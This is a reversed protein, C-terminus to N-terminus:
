IGTIEELSNYYRLGGTRMFERGAERMERVRAEPMSRAQRWMEEWSSVGRCDVYVDRPILDEINKAGLYLPITGSCICDLIKETIYDTMFMNEFCLSFRYRSLVEHKAGCRGKYVSLLAARNKWYPPWMSFPSWWEEWRPGYLDIDGTAALAAVAYIRRSYLESKPAGLVLHRLNYLIPNHNSSIVAIRNMRVQNDWLGPLVDNYPFPWYFKHLKKRDVGELSYGDGHVNSLYVRKFRKTLAPLARYLHPAVVPPEMVVFAELSVNEQGSLFEINDTIGLSYYRCPVKEARLAKASRLYYDATHVPVGAGEWKEKLRRFPELTGDRNISADSVDFIKDGYFAKYPPDILVDGSM